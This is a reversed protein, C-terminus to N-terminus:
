NLIIPLVNNPLSPAVSLIRKSASEPSKCNSPSSTNPIVRPPTEDSNAVDVNGNKAAVLSSPELVINLTPSAFWNILNSVPPDGLNNILEDVYKKPDDFWNIDPALPFISIDDELKWKSLLPLTLIDPVIVEVAPLIPPNSILETPILDELLLKINDEDPWIVPESTNNSPPVIPPNLKPLM